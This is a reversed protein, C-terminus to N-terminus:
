LDNIKNRLLLLVNKIIIIVLLEKILSQMSMTIINYSIEFKNRSIRFCLFYYRQIHKIENRNWSMWSSNPHSRLDYKYIFMLILQRTFHFQKAFNIEEILRRNLCGIESM